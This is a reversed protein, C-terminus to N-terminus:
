TTLQLNQLRPDHSWRVHHEHLLTRHLAILAQWQEHSLKVQRGDTQNQAQQNDIEVCKKEVMVLGAYIGKVENVLQEQSIPRTEPQLLISPDRENFNDYPL